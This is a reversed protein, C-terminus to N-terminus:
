FNMHGITKLFNYISNLIYKKPQNTQILHIINYIGSIIIHKNYSPEPVPVPTPNPNPIPNPTPTPTPTPFPIPEPAAAIPLVNDQFQGIVNGPPSTNMTIDVSNNSTNISFGMGFKSSNKWVLCTFHGTGKSFGPSNFDYLNVENYWMDIAKKILIMTDSGYGQYFALNEGYITSGSHEFINKSILNYSWQQAYRAITEDWIMPPAQHKARYSNVYMAIENQQDQTLFPQQITSSM